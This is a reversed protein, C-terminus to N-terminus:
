ARSPEDMDERAKASLAALHGDNALRQALHRMRKPGATRIMADGYAREAWFRANQGIKERLEDLRDDPWRKEYNLTFMRRRTSGGFAAHKTLHNFLLMDGPESELAVAPVDRGTVGWVGRADNDYYGPAGEHIAQAYADTALHSGPIVRLCGTDAAVPDLYFAIKISLPKPELTGDSHWRTDGVYLNGDSATYNYDDGLLTAIPGDIRPDDILASLYEHEDAFPLMASRDQHDHERGHHGGGHAAWVDEFADSIAQAEADFLGPFGVYGFTEFFRIQQDTLRM